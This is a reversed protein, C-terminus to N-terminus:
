INRELRKRGETYTDRSREEKYIVCMSVTMGERERKNKHGVLGLKLVHQIPCCAHEFTVAIQMRLDGRTQALNFMYQATM